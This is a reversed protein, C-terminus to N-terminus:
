YSPRINGSVLRYDGFGYEDYFVFKERLDDYYWVEYEGQYYQSPTTREVRDPPGFVIYVRGRDTRWGERRTHSFTRNAFEVRRYFEDFLPNNPAGPSPNRQDWFAKFVSDKKGEPATVLKKWDDADTVYILPGILDNVPLGEFTQLGAVFRLDKRVTKIQGDGTARLVLQNEGQIMSEKNIQLFVKTIEQIPVIQQVFTFGEAGEKQRLVSELKIERKNIPSVVEAFVFIKDQIPIRFSPIVNQEPINHTDAESIFLVDSVEIQNRKFARVTKRRDQLRLRNSNRDLLRIQFLYEDAPLKLAFRHVRQVKPDITTAYSREFVTFNRDETLISRGRLNSVGINIQYRASFGSDSTVYQLHTNRVWVYVFTEPQQFGESPFSVIEFDFRPLFRENDQAKGLWPLLVILIPVLLLKNKMVGIM